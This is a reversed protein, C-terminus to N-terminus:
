MLCNWRLQFPVFCALATATPNFSEPYVYFKVSRNLNLSNFCFWRQDRARYLPRPKLIHDLVAFCLPRSLQFPFGSRESMNMGVYSLCAERWRGRAVDPFSEVRTGVQGAHAMHVLRQESCLGRHGQCPPPPPFSACNTLAFAVGSM